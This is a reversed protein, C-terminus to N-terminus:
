DARVRQGDALGDLRGVVVTEGGRLGSQVVWADGRAEGLVIPTKQVKGDRLVFVHAAAGDRGVAAGPVLVTPAGPTATAPASEELFTVKCGMDPVLRRDRDDISVKVQVVAKQRDGTPVIQRLSGHYVRDPVADVQVLAPQELRLRAIYSENIDAEVELSAPDAIRVIAGTSQQTTFGGPAVMEGLEANREIVVGDLPSRITADDLRARASALAAEATGVQAAAMDLRTAAADRTEEPVVGRDFLARQRENERKADALNAQVEALRAENERVAAELDRSDLRAIVAGAVVTDGEDVKLELIRGVIRAGVSAKRRAYTYGAATLVAAAEASTVAQVRATQVRRAFQPLRVGLGLALAVLVAAAAAVGGAVVLARRQSRSARAEPDMRLSALRRQMAENNEPTTSQGHSV